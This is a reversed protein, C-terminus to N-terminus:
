RKIRINIMNPKGGTGQVFNLKDYVPSTGNSVPSTIIGSGSTIQLAIDTTHEDVKLNTTKITLTQDTVFVSYPPIRVMVPIFIFASSYTKGAKKVNLGLADNSYEKNSNLDYNPIELTVETNNQSFAVKLTNNSLTAVVADNGELLIISNDGFFLQASNTLQGSETDPTAEDGKTCASLSGVLLLAVILTSKRIKKM